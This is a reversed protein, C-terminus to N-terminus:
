IVNHPVVKEGALLTIFLSVECSAPFAQLSESVVITITMTCQSLRIIITCFNVETTSNQVSKDEWQDGNSTLRLHLTVYMHTHQCCLSTALRQQTHSRTCPQVVKQMFAKSVAKSQDKRSDQLSNVAQLQNSSMWLIRCAVSVASIQCFGTLTDM